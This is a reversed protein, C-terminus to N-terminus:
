RERRENRGAAALRSLAAGVGAVVPQWAGYAQQRFLRMTPYWRTDDANLQWRWDNGVPLLLWVPVGMAGALHAVATDVSIVLDLASVLAATDLFDGLRASPDLLRAPAGAAEAARPGVQLSVWDIGEIAFLPTLTALPLSRNHENVHKPSGGWAIGVRLRMREGLEDRWAAALEAPPQLYPIPAPITEPTTGLLLPVSLLPCYIDCPPHQPHEEVVAAWPLSASLLRALPRQVMLSIKAGADHLVGAYRCFQLTDGLGQEAVLLIHRGAPADGQWAPAAIRPPSLQRLRWRWLYEFWGDAFNGRLLTQLAVGVHGDAHLPDAAVAARYADLAEDHRGLQALSLGLNSWCDAFGRDLALAARYSAIAEDFRRLAQLANGLNSHAVAFQPNCDIARRHCRAAEEYDAREYLAVGLNSLAEPYAPRLEVARRGERVADDIRGALRYMEGLNAHFHPVAPALKAARRLQEIAEGLQGSQHALLGLLHVANAEDPQAALIKNCLTRAEVLRGAARHQEALALAEALPMSRPTAAAAGGSEAGQGMGAVKWGRASKFM